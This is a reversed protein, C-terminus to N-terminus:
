CFGQCCQCEGLSACFGKSRGGFSIYSCSSHGLCSHAFSFVDSVQLLIPALFDVLLLALIVLMTSFGQSADAMEQIKICEAGLSLFKQM